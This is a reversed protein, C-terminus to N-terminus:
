FNEPMMNNLFVNGGVGWHGSQQVALRTKDYRSTNDTTDKWRGFSRTGLGRILKKAFEDQDKAVMAKRLEDAAPTPANVSFAHYVAMALDLSIGLHEQTAFSLFNSMNAATVKTKSYKAYAAFEADRQGRLLWKITYLKQAQFTRPDSFILSFLQAMKSAQVVHPGGWRVHGLPGSLLVRLDEGPVRKGDKAHVVVGNLTLEYGAAKLENRLGDVPGSIGVPVAAFIDALLEWLSGQIKSSPSVAIAHLPGASMGAGDYNQVTGWNAAEMRSLLFFAWEMHISTDPPTIPTSGRVVFGAYSKYTRYQAEPMIDGELFHYAM